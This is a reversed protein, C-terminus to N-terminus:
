QLSIAANDRVWYGDLWGGSFRVYPRGNIIARADVRAHTDHDYGRRIADTVKGYWTFHYGVYRGADISIGRDPSYPHFWTMGKIYSSSREPVWYGSLVGSSVKLYAHGNVYSRGAGDRVVTRRYDLTRRGMVAGDSSFKYATRRGSQLVLPRDPDYSSVPKLYSVSLQSSSGGCLVAFVMVSYHAGDSATRWAGGAANYAAGMMIDHHTPSNWWALMTRAYDYDPYGREWAIIEGVGSWCVGADNLRRTVYDIDHVLQDVAVLQGARHSAIDDLLATGFVPQLGGQVRYANAAARLGDGGFALTSAPKVAGMGALVALGLIAAILRSRAGAAPVAPAPTQHM